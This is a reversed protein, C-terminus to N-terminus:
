GQNLWFPGSKATSGVNNAYAARIPTASNSLLGHEM